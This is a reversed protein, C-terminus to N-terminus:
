GNPTPRVKKPRRTKGKMKAARTKKAELRRETVQQMNADFQKQHEPTLANRFDQKNRKRLEKLRSKEEDTLTVGRLLGARPRRVMGTDVRAARAGDPATSQAGAFSATSALAAVVFVMLRTNRM